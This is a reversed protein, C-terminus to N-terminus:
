DKKTIYKGELLDAISISDLYGNVVEELRIWMPLTLCNESRKCTDDGCDLCSVPALEGEAARLVEGVSYEAPSKKLKYGGEKGRQSDVLEAKNMTAVIMELYKLSIGQREAISKLSVYGDDGHQALDLIVRLAYRGKTSIMM